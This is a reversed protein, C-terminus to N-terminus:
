YAISKRRKWLILQVNIKMWKQDSGDVFILRVSIFFFFDVLFLHSFTSFQPFRFLMLNLVCTRQVEKGNEKNTSAKRTKRVCECQTSLLDWTSLSSFPAFFSCIYIAVLSRIICRNEICKSIFYSFITSRLNFSYRKGVEFWNSEILFDWHSGNLFLSYLLFFDLFHIFQFSFTWNSNIRKNTLCWHLYISELNDVVKDM